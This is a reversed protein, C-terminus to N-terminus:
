NNRHVEKGDSKLIYVRSKRIIEIKSNRSQLLEWTKDMFEAVERTSDDIGGKGKILNQYAWDCQGWYKTFGHKVDGFAINPEIFIKQWHHKTQTNVDEEDFEEGLASNVKALFESPPKNVGLPRGSLTRDLTIKTSCPNDKRTCGADGTVSKGNRDYGKPCSYCKGNPDAFGKACLWGEIKTARSKKYYAPKYCVGTDKVKKGGDHKYGSKCKYCSDSGLNAFTKSKCSEWAKSKYSYTAKKSVKATKTKAICADSATVAAATRNYNKPCSWCEGGNRPDWFGGAPCSKVRIKGEYKAKFTPLGMIPTKTLHKAVCLDLDSDTFTEDRFNDGGPHNEWDFNCKTYISAAKKDKGKGLFHEDFVGDEVNHSIIGMLFAAKQQCSASTDGSHCEKGLEEIYQTMFTGDHGLKDGVGFPLAADPYLTGSRYANLNNALLKKLNSDKVLLRAKESVALHVTGGSALLTSPQFVCLSLITLLFVRTKFM